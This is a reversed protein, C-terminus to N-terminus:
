ACRRRVVKGFLATISNLEHLVQKFLLEYVQCPNHTPPLRTSPNAQQRRSHAAAHRLLM